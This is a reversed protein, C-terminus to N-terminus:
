TNIFETTSLDHEKHGSATPSSEGHQRHQRHRFVGPSLAQLM